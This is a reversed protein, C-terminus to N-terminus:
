KWLANVLSNYFDDKQSDDLSHQPAYVSLRLTYQVGGPMFSNNCSTELTLLSKIWTIFYQLLSTNVDNPLSTYPNLCGFEPHPCHTYWDEWFFDTYTVTYLVMKSIICVEMKVNWDVNTLRSCLSSSSSPSNNQLIISQRFAKLWKEMGSWQWVRVM